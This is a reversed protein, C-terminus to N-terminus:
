NRKSVKSSKRIKRGNDYKIEGTEIYYAFAERVKKMKTGLTSTVFSWICNSCKIIWKM